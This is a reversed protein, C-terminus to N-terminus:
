RSVAIDHIRVLCDPGIVRPETVGYAVAVMRRLTVMLGTLNGSRLGPGLM